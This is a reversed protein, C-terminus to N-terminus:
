PMPSHAGFLPDNKTVVYKKSKGSMQDWERDTCIILGAAELVRKAISIKSKLKSVLADVDLDYNGKMAGTKSLMRYVAAIRAVPLGHQRKPDDEKTITALGAAYQVIALDEFTIKDRAKGKVSAILEPTVFQSLWGYQEFAFTVQPKYPGLHALIAEYRKRRNPRAPGTNLGLSEYYANWEDYDRADRHHSDRFAKVAHLTREQSSASTATIIQEGVHIDAHTDQAYSSPSSSLCKSRPVSVTRGNVGILAVLEAFSLLRVGSVTAQLEGLTAWEPARVLVGQNLCKRRRDKGIEIVPFTGKIADLHSRFPQSVEDRVLNAMDSCLENMKSRSFEGGLVVPLYLYAGNGGTSPQIFGCRPPLYRQQIALAHETADTLGSDSDIDFALLGYQGRGSVYYLCADPDFLHHAFSPSNIEPLTNGRRGEGNLFREVAENSHHSPEKRRCLVSLYPHILPLVRKRYRAVLRREEPQLAEQWYSWKHRRYKM